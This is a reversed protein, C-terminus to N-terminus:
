HTPEKDGRIKEWIDNRHFNLFILPIRAWREAPVLFLKHDRLMQIGCVEEVYMIGNLTEVATTWM